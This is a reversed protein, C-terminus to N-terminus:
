SQLSLHELHDLSKNELAAELLAPFQDPTCGFSVVGMNALTRALEKDYFPKGKDDLALLNILRVGRNQSDQVQQLLIEESSGEYLDSILFM